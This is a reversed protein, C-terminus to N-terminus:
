VEATQKIPESLRYGPKTAGNEKQSCTQTAPRRPSMWEETLLQSTTPHQQLSVYSSRPRLLHEPLSQTSLRRPISSREVFEGQNTFTQSSALVSDKREQQKKVSKQLINSYTQIITQIEHPSKPSRQDTSERRSRSKLTGSKGPTTSQPSKLGSEGKESGDAHLDSLDTCTSNSGCRQYTGTLYETVKQVINM